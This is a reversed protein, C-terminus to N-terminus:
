RLRTFDFEHIIFPFETNLASKVTLVVSDPCNLLWRISDAAEHMAIVVPSCISRHNTPLDLEARLDGRMFVTYPVSSGRPAMDFLNKTLNQIIDTEQDVILDHTNLLLLSLIRLYSQAHYYHCYSVYM